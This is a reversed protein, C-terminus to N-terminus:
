ERSIITTLQKILEQPVEEPEEILDELFNEIQISVYTDINDYTYKSVIKLALNYYKLNICKVLPDDDVVENEDYFGPHLRNIEPIRNYIDIIYDEDYNNELLCSLIWFAFEDFKEFEKKKLISIYKYLYYKVLLKNNKQENIMFCYGYHSDFTDEQLNNLLFIDITIKDANDFIFYYYSGEDFNIGDYLIKFSMLTIHKNEPLLINPLHKKYLQRSLYNENNKCYNYIYSNLKCTNLIDKIDSKLIIEQLVDESLNNMYLSKLFLKILFM